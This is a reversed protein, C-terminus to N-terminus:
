GAPKECTKVKWEHGCVKCRYKTEVVAQELLGPEPDIKKRSRFSYSSSSCEPCTRTAPPRDM